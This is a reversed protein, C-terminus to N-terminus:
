NYPKNEVAIKDLSPVDWCDRKQKGTVIVNRSNCPHESSYSEKPSKLPHLSHSQSAKNQGLECQEM